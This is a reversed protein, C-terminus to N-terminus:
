CREGRNSQSDKLAPTCRDQMAGPRYYANLLTTLNSFSHIIQCTVIPDKTNLGWHCVNRLYNELLGERETIYM